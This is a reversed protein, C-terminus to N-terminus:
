QIGLRSKVDAESIGYKKATATIDEATYDPPANKGGVVFGGKNLDYIYPEEDMVMGNEYKKRTGTVISDKAKPGVGLAKLKAQAAAVKNPDGSLLDQQLAYQLSAIGRDPSSEDLALKRRQYDGTVDQGRAAISNRDIGEMAEAANKYEALKLKYRSKEDSTNLPMRQLEALMKNLNGAAPKGAALETDISDIAAQYDGRAIAANRAALLEPSTLISGANQKAQAVAQANEPRAEFPLRGAIGAGAFDNLKGDARNSRAYIEANGTDYIGGTQRKYGKQDAIGLSTLVANDSSAQMSPTKRSPDSPLTTITQEPLKGASAQAPTGITAPKAVPPPANGSFPAMLAGVGDKISKAEFQAPKYKDGTFGEQVGAVLKSGFNAVAPLLTPIKSEYAGRAAAGVIKADNVASDAVFKGFRGVGKGFDTALPPQADYFEKLNQTPKRKKEENITVM